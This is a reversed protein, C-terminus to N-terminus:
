GSLVGSLACMIQRVGALAGAPDSVGANDLVRVGIEAATALQMLSTRVAAISTCDIVIDMKIPPQPRVEALSM